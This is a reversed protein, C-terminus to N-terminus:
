AQGLQKESVPVERKRRRIKFYGSRLYFVAGGAEIEMKLFAGLPMPSGIAGTHELMILGASVIMEAKGASRKLYRPIMAASGTTHTKVTIRRITFVLVSKLHDGERLAASVSPFHIIGPFSEKASPANGPIAAANRACSVASRRRQAGGKMPFIKRRFRFGQRGHFSFM